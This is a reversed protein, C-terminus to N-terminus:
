RCQTTEKGSQISEQYENKVELTDQKDDSLDNQSSGFIQNFSLMLREMDVEALM